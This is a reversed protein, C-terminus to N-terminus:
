DSREFGSNAERKTKVAIRGDGPRRFGGKVAAILYWPYKGCEKCPEMDDFCETREDHPDFLDNCGCRIMRKGHPTRAYLPM